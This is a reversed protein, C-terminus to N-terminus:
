LWEVGELLPRDKYSITISDEWAGQSLQLKIAFNFSAANFLDKNESVFSDPIAILMEAATIIRGGSQAAMYEQWTTQLQEKQSATTLSGSVQMKIAVQTPRSFNYRNLRGFDNPVSVTLDGYTPTGCALTNYLVNGIDMDTGGEIICAVSYPAIGEPSQTPQTNELIDVYQVGDIKYLAERLIPMSGYTTTLAAIRARYEGDTEAPGGGSAAAPNNVSTIGPLISVTSTITGSPVNGVDGPVTAQVAVTTGGVALTINALSRFQVGASSAAFITGAPVLYGTTGSVVVQATAYKESIRELGRQAGLADLYQGTAYQLFLQQYGAYAEANMQGCVYAMSDLLASIPGNADIQAGPFKKLIMNALQDRLEAATWLRVGSSSVSM